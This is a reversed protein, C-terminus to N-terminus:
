EFVPCLKTPFDNPFSIVSSSNLSITKWVPITPYGSDIVSGEVEILNM